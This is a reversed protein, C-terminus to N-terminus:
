FWTGKGDGGPVPDPEEPPDYAYVLIESLPVLTGTASDSTFEGQVEMNISREYIIEDSGWPTGPAAANGRPEIQDFDFNMSVIPNQEVYSRFATLGTNLDADGFAIVKVLEDYLRDRERSTLAVVTISAYGAFRWRSLVRPVGTDPDIFERHRIGAIQVQATDDYDVWLGPYHAPEVPYEISAHLNRFDAEPYDANFTKVLAETVAAKVHTLYGPM